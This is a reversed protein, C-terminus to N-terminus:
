AGDAHFMALLAAGSRLELQQGQISYTTTKTLAQLYEAEQQMVGDPEACFKRTAAPPQISIKGDAAQYAAHYQNCGASGSLTGNANFVVSIHTGDLLSVVAERGNNYASAQWTNGLLGAAKQVQFVALKNGQANLLALEGSNIRYSATMALAAMFGQEVKAQAEPCAMMTTAAHGITLQNGRLVYTATYRNCGASGTLKGDAFTATAELAPPVTQPSWDAQVVQTLRWNGGELVAADVIEVWLMTSTLLALALLVTRGTLMM